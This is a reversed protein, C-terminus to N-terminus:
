LQLEVPTGLFDALRRAEREIGKRRDNTLRVLLEVRLEIKRARRKLEWVGAVAGDVLVVASIWGAIRFVRDIQGAPVFADRPRYHLTYLDFNPLLHVSRPPDLTRLLEADGSLVWGRRGEAEVPEVEDGLSEFLRRAPGRGTGGDWWRAFDEHTAPGYARLFRRVIERLAEDGDQRELGGLWDAPRVFTVNRGRNPGFALVGEYAAPKLHSGWGRLLKERLHPPAMAAVEERTKGAGDLAADLTAILSEMEDLTVGFSRLWLPKRWHSRHALASSWLGFEFAPLLHLTGRMCWTKVLERREWLVEQVHGPTLGRSRAWLALEAASMVQAQIGGVDAVLEALREPPLPDTLHQRALRFARVQRPTIEIM